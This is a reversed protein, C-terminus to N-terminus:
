EVNIKDYSVDIESKSETWLKVWVYCCRLVQCVCFVYRENCSYALFAKLMYVNDLQDLDLEIILIYKSVWFLYINKM